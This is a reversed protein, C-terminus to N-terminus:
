CIFEPKWRLDRTLCCQMINQPLYTVKPYFMCIWSAKLQRQPSTLMIQLAKYIRFINHYDDYLEFLQLICTGILYQHRYQWSLFYWGNILLFGLFDIPINEKSPRTLREVYQGVIMEKSITIATTVKPICYTRAALELWAIDLLKASNSRRKVM